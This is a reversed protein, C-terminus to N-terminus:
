YLSNSVEQLVMSSISVVSFTEIVYFLVTLSENTWSAVDILVGKHVMESLSSYM